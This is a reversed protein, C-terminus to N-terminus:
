ASAKHRGDWWPLRGKSLADVIRDAERQTLQHNDVSKELLPKIAKTVADAFQDKNMGKAAALQSLTQGSKLAKALDEPKMGLVQASAELYDRRAVRRDQRRDNHGAHSPSGPATVSPSPSPTSAAFAPVSLGGVLLLGGAAAGGLKALFPVNMVPVIAPM